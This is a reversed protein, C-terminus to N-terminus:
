ARTPNPRRVFLEARALGDALFSQGPWGLPCFARDRGVRRAFLETRALRNSLFRQGVRGFGLTGFGLRTKGLGVTVRNKEDKELQTFLLEDFVWAPVNKNATLQINNQIKLLLENYEFDFNLFDNLIQLTYTFIYEENHIKLFNQVEIWFRAIIVNNVDYILMQWEFISSSVTIKLFNIQLILFNLQNRM